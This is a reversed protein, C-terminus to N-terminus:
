KEIKKHWYKELLKKTRLSKSVVGCEFFRKKGEVKGSIEYVNSFIMGLIPKSGSYDKTNKIRRINKWLYIEKPYLVFYLTIGEEDFGLDSKIARIFDQKAVKEYERVKGKYNENMIKEFEEKPFTDTIGVLRVNAELRLKGVRFVWKIKEKTQTRLALDM